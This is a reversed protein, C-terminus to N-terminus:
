VLQDAIADDASSGKPDPGYKNTGSDGESALFVILAIIGVLPIFAIFFWWGSRNTDHLRRVMVGIGPLLFGLSILNAVIYLIGFASDGLAFGLGILGYTILLNFLMFYWYEARRARGNFDAYHQTVVKKFYDFGSM